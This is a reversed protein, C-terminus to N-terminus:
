TRARSRLRRIETSIARVHAETTGCCGGVISAGAEALAPVQASMEEPSGPYRVGSSTYVPLGANPRCVLPLTTAARLARVVEVMTEPGTGCNTGLLKAGAVELDRAAREPSAGFISFIGRPTIEFTMCAIVPLGTAVSAEVALVAEQPDTMTEVILADCNGEALAEAQRRFGDRASEPALPGLPALLSGTPGISGAVLACAGAVERAISAAARNIQACSGELGHAGLRAPSGGFTNTQLLEAGAELYRTLIDAILDPRELNWVEPCAGPLLGNEQLATGMAGDAAMLRRDALWAMLDHGPRIM